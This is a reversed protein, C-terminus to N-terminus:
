NSDNAEAYSINAERKRHSARRSLKSKTSDTAPTAKITTWKPPADADPDSGSPTSESRKLKKRGNTNKAAVMKTGPPTADESKVPKSNVSREKIRGKLPTATPAASDPDVKKKVVRKVPRLWEEMGPPWYVRNQPGGMGFEEDGVLELALVEEVEVDEDSGDSTQAKSRKKKKPRAAKKPLPRNDDGRVNPIMDTISDFGPLKFNRMLEFVAQEKDKAEIMLDM